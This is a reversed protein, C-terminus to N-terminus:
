GHFLEPFEINKDIIGPNGIGKVVYGVTVRMLPPLDYVNVQFTGVM